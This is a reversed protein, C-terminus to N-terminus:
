IWESQIELDLPQYNIYQVIRPVNSKNPASGHPLCQNWIIFDGAKAAISKTQFQSLLNKDRPNKDKELNILWHDIIKHFGPILTFAGQNETTDTLYLLGQMGFPIPRKLSVDWHLNPGPFHYDKTKPPNFSVRDMSVMLDNRKWLQQYALKIRKAFRNKDLSPSSFLQIMIGKKLPHDKYWSQPIDRDAELQDFIYDVTEECDAKPIANRLIVYGHKDWHDLESQDFVENTPIFDNEKEIDILANFENIMLNSIKGNQYLWNEFDKFSTNSEMLFNITPEIGVGLANFVGNIFKWEIRNLESNNSRLDQFYDYIERLYYIGIEGEDYNINKTIEM